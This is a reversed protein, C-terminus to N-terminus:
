SGNQVIEYYPLRVVMKGDKEEITIQGVDKTQFIEGGVEELRELTKVHPHGYVNKEGVSILAYDPSFWQLFEECSSYGSGHHAVKLIRYTGEKPALKVHEQLWREQEEGIDGTLLMQVTESELLLVLSNENAGEYVSPSPPYCCTVTLSPTRIREGPKMALVRINQREALQLLTTLVTPEEDDDEWVSEALVLCQIDYGQEMLELLGSIHDLDTHTVFWYDVHRIGHYMLFPLIEYTGVQDESSSGGDVFFNAGERSQIFIGDGQGVDMVTIELAKTPMQLLLFPLFSLCLVRFFKPFQRGNIGYVILYFLAYYLLIKGMAPCGIIQRAGPLKLCLDAAWEYLYLIMHCPLLLVQGAQPLYMGLGGGLLACGLVAPLLPLLLLNLILSYMPAEYYFRAILPLTWLQILATQLITMRIKGLKIDDSCKRCVSCIGLVTGFSFLFGSQELLFPNQWVLCFAALGLGTLSDYARGLVDGLLFLLFMILARGTSSSLGCMLVYGSLVAGAVGGSVFFGLGRRRLLRYLTMGVVSIHLGSIALIHSLGSMRYLAKVQSDVEWRMGLVIASLVGGEEGPLCNQYVESLTQRCQELKQRISCAPQCVQVVKNGQIEADIGLSRYYTTQDFGGENRVVSFTRCTGEGRITTGITFEESVSTLIVSRDTIIKGDKQLTVHRLYYIKNGKRLETKEIEGQFSLHSASSLFAAGDRWQRLAYEGRFTGLVFGSILVLLLGKKWSGIRRRQGLLLFVALLGGGWLCIPTDYIRWGVGLLFMTCLQCWRRRSM